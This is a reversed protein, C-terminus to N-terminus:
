SALPMAIAAAAPDLAADVFGFIALAAGMGLGLMLVAIATFGPSKLSNASPSASIRRRFQRACNRRAHRPM